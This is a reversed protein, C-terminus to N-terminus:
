DLRWNRIQQGGLAMHYWGKVWPKVLYSATYFYLPIMAAEEETLIQEARYYLRKREEPNTSAMAKETLDAFEQNHWRLRNTSKTPHFVELLWNNADPYDACWGFRFLHPASPETTSKLYVKWEQNEVKINIGLNRKLMAQVAQAVKAHSESTNHMYTIEPFGEGNPYGAEALWKKAQEPDYHIGVGASPDVSGFIPPRTFTTAPEQGGRTVREVLVKRDIAASLAKRVKPNDMPARENNIALYYTCLDPQVSFESRHEEKIRNMEAPPIPLYSAGMVDLEDNEYMALGTSEEPIIYYHVEPIYPALGSIADSYEPNRKLVLRDGKKWEAVQYSGNTVINEANTWSTGHAEIAKRPLPRYTWLGAMAPFFGAPANLQFEVTYDDLAKVGLQDVDKETGTNIAEANKLIYLVYAYPSATEPLINRKVAYEIDRATVPTGDSWKVGKRLNFTYTMSDASAQWSTALEPVVEYTKPNYDTLGLFLQEIVEISSSDQAVGPDLSPIASQMPLRLYDPHDAALAASSWTLTAVLAGTMFSRILTKM